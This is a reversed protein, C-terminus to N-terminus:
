SPTVGNRRVDVATRFGQKIDITHRVKTIWYEGSFQVGFNGLANITFRHKQGMGISANGPMQAQGQVLQDARRQMEAAALAQAEADTAISRGVIRIVETVDTRVKVDTYALGDVMADGLSATGRHEGKANTASWAVVEVGTRQGRSSLDPTFAFLPWQTPTIGSRDCGYVLEWSMGQQAALWNDDVIYLTGHRVFVRLNNHSAADLLMQWDTQDIQDIGAVINRDTLKAVPEIVLNLANRHAIFEVVQKFHPFKDATYHFGPSIRKLGYSYDFCKIRVQPDGSEPCDPAIEGIEGTFVQQLDGVYGIWFTVQQGLRFLNTDLPSSESQRVGFDLHATAGLSEEYVIDTIRVSQLLDQDCIVIRYASSRDPM